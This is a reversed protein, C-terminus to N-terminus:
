LVSRVLKLKALSSFGPEHTFRAVHPSNTVQCVLATESDWGGCCYCFAKCGGRRVVKQPKKLKQSSHSELRSSCIEKVMLGKLITLLPSAFCKM